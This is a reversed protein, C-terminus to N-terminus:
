IFKGIWVYVRENKLMIRVFYFYKWINLVRTLYEDNCYWGSLRKEFLFIDTWEFGTNYCYVGGSDRRCREKEEMRKIKVPCETPHGGRTEVKGEKISRVLKRQFWSFSFKASFYLSAPKPWTSGSVNVRGMWRDLKELVKCVKGREELPPLSTILILLLSCYPPTYVM